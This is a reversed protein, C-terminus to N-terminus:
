SRTAARAILSWGLAAGVAAEALVTVNSRMAMHMPSGFAYHLLGSLLVVAYIGAASYFLRDARRRTLAIIGIATVLCWSVVVGLPTIWAPEPYQDIALTNDAFHLLSAVVGAAILLKM